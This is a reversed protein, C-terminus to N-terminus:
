TRSLDDYFPDVIVFSDHDDKSLCYPSDAVNSDSYRHGSPMIDSDRIVGSEVLSANKTNKLTEEFGGNQQYINNSGNIKRKMESQNHMPSQDLTTLLIGQEGIANTSPVSTSRSKSDINNNNSSNDHDEKQIPRCVYLM